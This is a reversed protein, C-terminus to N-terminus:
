QNKNIIEKYFEVTNKYCNDWSYNSSIEIGKAIIDERIKKDELLVISNIFDNITSNIDLLIGEGMTIERISEINYAVFPCGCKMSEIIPIGFGEYKSPYLLCHANNYLYNLDTTQISKLHKVRKNLQLKTILVNESESLDGGGVIILNYLNLKQIINLALEFNKYKYRTGVFLIYNGYIEQKVNISNNLISFEDSVGNYIVKQFKNKCFPYYKNLERQTFSSICIIADTNKLALYKFLINLWKKLGIQTANSEYGLDHITMINISKSFSFSFNLYSTHFIHSKKKFYFLPLFRLFNIPFINRYLNIKFSNSQKLSMVKFSNDNDNNKYVRVDYEFNNDKSFRKILESWYISIGGQKQLSFIISDLYVKM